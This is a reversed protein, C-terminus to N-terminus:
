TRTTGTPRIGVKGVHGEDFDDTAAGAYYDNSSGPEPYVAGIGDM